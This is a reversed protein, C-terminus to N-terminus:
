GAADSEGRARPRTKQQSFNQNTPVLRPAPVAQHSHGLVQQQLLQAHEEVHLHLQPFPISIGNQDLQKKIEATLLERVKSYDAKNTWFRITWDVSSPGLNSLLVEYGRDNGQVLKDSLLEAANSLVQRTAELNSNYAVGVSVDVRRHDHFSINEITAGAISSNPIILRRNDPTDLTTTFLDIENVKGTVGSVNVVDGVRFPRFVLLLVGSAFNSLTGQFALGVAFGVATLAAAASTVDMGATSLICMSMFFMVSYFTLRGSFKGLTEDVRKCVVASVWRAILRAVFYSAIILALAVMGPVVYKFLFTTTAQDVEGNLLNGVSSRVQTAVSNVESQSAAEPTNAVASNQDM